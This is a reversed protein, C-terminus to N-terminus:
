WSVLADGKGDRKVKTGLLRLFTFSSEFDKQVQGYAVLTQRGQMQTPIAAFSARDAASVMVQVYDYDEHEGRNFRWISGQYWNPKLHRIMQNRYNFRVGVLKGRPLPDLKKLAAMDYTKVRRWM